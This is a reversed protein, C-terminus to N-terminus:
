LVIFVVVMASGGAGAMVVGAIISGAMVLRLTIIGTGTRGGAAIGGGMFVQRLLNM